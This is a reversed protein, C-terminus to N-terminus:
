MGLINQNLQPILNNVVTKFINKNKDDDRHDVFWDMNIRLDEWLRKTNSNSNNFLFDLRSPKKEDKEPNSLYARIYDFLINLGHCYTHYKDIDLTPCRNY